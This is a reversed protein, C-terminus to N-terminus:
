VSRARIREYEAHSGAFRVEVTGVEYDVVTVIRYRNNRINFLLRKGDLIRVGRVHRRVDQPSSWRSGTVSDIWESIARAADPYRRLLRDFERANTIRM